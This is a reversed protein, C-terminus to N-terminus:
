KQVIRSLFRFLSFRPPILVLMERLSFEGNRRSSSRGHGSEVIHDVLFVRVPWVPDRRRKRSTQLVPIGGGWGGGKDWWRQEGGEGRPSASRSCLSRTRLCRWCRGALFLISDFIPWGRAFRRIASNELLCNWGEVEQSLTRDRSLLAVLSKEGGLISARTAGENALIQGLSLNTRPRIEQGGRRYELAINRKNKVHHHNTVIPTLKRPIRRSSITSNFYPQQTSKRLSIKKLRKKPLLPPNTKM